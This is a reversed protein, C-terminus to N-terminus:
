YYKKEKFQSFFNKFESWKKWMLVFFYFNSLEQSRRFTMFRGPEVHEITNSFKEKSKFKIKKSKGEFIGLLFKKGFYIEM